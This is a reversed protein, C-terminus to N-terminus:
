YARASRQKNDVKVLKLMFRDTHYRIKEDFSSLKREDKGNRLVDSRAAVKFGFQQLDNILYTEDIRHLSQVDRLSSGAEAAHDIVILSGGPKLARNFKKYLADKDIMPWGNAPDAYYVDHLAMAAVIVDYQKDGLDLDDVELELRRTNNMRKSSYRANLQTGIWDLYPRNNYVDVRGKSGVINAMLESYYGAGAFFDLVTDGPKVGFFRLSEDPKRYEDAKRDVETRTADGITDSIVDASVCLSFFLKFFFLALAQNCWKM